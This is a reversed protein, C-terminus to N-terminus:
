VPLFPYNKARILAATEVILRALLADRNGAICHKKRNPHVTCCTPLCIWQLNAESGESGHIHEWEV